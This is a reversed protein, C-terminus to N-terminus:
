LYCFGLLNANIIFSHWFSFVILTVCYVWAHRHRELFVFLGRLSFLILPFTFIIIAIIENNVLGFLIPIPMLLCLLLLIKEFSLIKVKEKIACYIGYLICFLTIPSLLMLLFRIDWFHVYANFIDTSGQTLKNHFIRAIIPPVNQNTRIDFIIRLKLDLPSFFFKSDLHCGFWFSLYFGTTILLLITIFIKKIRMNEM